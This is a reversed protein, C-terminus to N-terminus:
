SGPSYSGSSMELAQLIDTGRPPCELFRSPISSKCSLEGSCSPLSTHSGGCLSDEPAGSYSFRSKGMTPVGPLNESCLPQLPLHPKASTVVKAIGSTRFKDRQRGLAQCLQLCPPICYENAGLM